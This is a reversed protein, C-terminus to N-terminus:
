AQGILVTGEVGFRTVALFLGEGRRGVQSIFTWVRSHLEFFLIPLSVM